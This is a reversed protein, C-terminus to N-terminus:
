EGTHPNYYVPCDLGTVSTPIEMWLMHLPDRGGVEVEEVGEGVVGERRMMWAVARCQYGRLVATLHPLLSSPDLEPDSTGGLNELRRRQVDTYFQRIKAVISLQHKSPSM